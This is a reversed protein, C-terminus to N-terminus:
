NIRADNITKLLVPDKTPNNINLKRSLRKWNDGFLEKMDARYESKAKNLAEKEKTTKSFDPANNKKLNEM